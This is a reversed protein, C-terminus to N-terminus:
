RVRTRRDPARRRIRNVRFGERGLVRGTDELLWTTAVVENGALWEDRVVPRRLQRELWDAAWVGFNEPDARVGVVTLCEPDDTKYNDLMHQDRWVGQLGPTGSPEIWPGETWFAVQLVKAGVPVGPVECLVASTAGPDLGNLTQDEAAERVADLFRAEPRSRGEAGAFWTTTGDSGVNGDQCRLGGIL